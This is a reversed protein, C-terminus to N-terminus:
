NGSGRYMEGAMELVQDQGGKKKEGGRKRGLGWIYGGFWTVIASALFHKSTQYPHRRLSEALAKCIYICTTLWQVSCLSWLSPTLLLVSPASPTQLEMLLVVFDVL